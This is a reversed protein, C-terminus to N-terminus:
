KSKRESKANTPPLSNGGNPVQKNKVASYDVNVQIPHKREMWMFIALGGVLLAGALLNALWRLPHKEPIFEIAAFLIMAVGIAIVCSTMVPNSIGENWLEPHGLEQCLAPIQTALILVGCFLFLGFLVNMFSEGYLHRGAVAWCPLLRRHILENLGDGPLRRRDM